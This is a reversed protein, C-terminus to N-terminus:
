VSVPLNLVESVGLLKAATCLALSPNKWSVSLDKTKAEKFFASFVQIVAGDVREVQEADIEVVHQEAMAKKLHAYLEDVVTIDVTPECNIITMKKSGSEEM